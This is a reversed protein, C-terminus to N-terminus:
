FHLHWKAFGHRHLNPQKGKEFRNLSKGVKSGSLRVKELGTKMGYFPTNKTFTAM